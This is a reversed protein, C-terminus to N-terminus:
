EWSLVPDHRSFILQGDAVSRLHLTDGEIGYYSIGSLTEFLLQELEGVRGQCGILSQIMEDIILTREQNVYYAASLSNCPGHGTLQLGPHTLTPDPGDFFEISPTAQIEGSRLQEILMADVWYWRGLLDSDSWRSPTNAFYAAQLQNNNIDLLLTYYGPRLSQNETVGVSDRYTYYEGSRFLM